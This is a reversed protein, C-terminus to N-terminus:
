EHDCRLWTWSFEKFLDFMTSVYIFRMLVGYLTNISINSYLFFLDHWQNLIFLKILFKNRYGWEFKRWQSENPAYARGGESYIPIM